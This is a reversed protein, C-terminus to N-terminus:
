SDMHLKLGKEINKVGWQNSRRQTRIIHLMFSEVLQHRWLEKVIELKRREEWM